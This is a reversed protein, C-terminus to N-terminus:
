GTNRSRPRALSRRWGRRRAAARPGRETQRARRAEPTSSMGEHDSMPICSWTIGGASCSSIDLRAPACMVQTLAPWRVGMVRGASTVLTIREATSAVVHDSVARESVAARPAARADLSASAPTASGVGADASSSPHSRASGAERFEAACGDTSRATAAHAYRGSRRHSPNVIAILKPAPVLHDRSAVQAWRLRKLDAIPGLDAALGPDYTRDLRQQALALQAQNHLQHPIVALAHVNTVRPGGAARPLTRADVM